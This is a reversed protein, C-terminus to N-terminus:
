VDEFLFKLVAELKFPLSSHILFQQPLEQYFKMLKPHLYLGYDGAIILRLDPSNLINEWRNDKEIQPASLVQAPALRLTIAQAINKLLTFQEPQDHFSLIIVPPIESNTRWKEKKKKAIEDSPPTKHLTLGSFLTQAIKWMESLDQPSTTSLPELTFGKKKEEKQSDQPPSPLPIVETKKIEEKKMPSIPEPPSKELPAESIKEVKKETIQKIPDSLVNIKKTEEVTVVVSNGEESFVNEEKKRKVPTINVPPPLTRFFHFVTPDVIKISKLPHERLLFLQTLSLLETYSDKIQKM